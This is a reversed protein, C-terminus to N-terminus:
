GLSNRVAACVASRFDEDDADVPTFSKDDFTEDVLEKVADKTVFDDHDYEDDHDKIKEDVNEIVWDKTVFDHTDLYNEIAKSVESRVLETVYTDLAQQAIAM